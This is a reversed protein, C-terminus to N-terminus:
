YVHGFILSSDRPRRESKPGVSDCRVGSLWWRSPWGTQTRDGDISGTAAEECAIWWAGNDGASTYNSVLLTLNWREASSSVVGRYTLDSVSSSIVVGGPKSSWCDGGDSTRRRILSQLSPRWNGSTDALNHFIPRLSCHEMTILSVVIERVWAM